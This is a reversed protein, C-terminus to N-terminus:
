SAGGALREAEAQVRARDTGANRSWLVAPVAGINRNRSRWWIEVGGPTYVEGLLEDVDHTSTDTM